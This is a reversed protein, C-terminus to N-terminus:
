SATVLELGRALARHTPDDGASVAPAMDHLSQHLGDADGARISGMATGQPRDVIILFAVARHAHMRWAVARTLCAAKYAGHSREQVMAACRVFPRADGCDLRIILVFKGDVEVEMVAEIEEESIAGRVVLILTGTGADPAQEQQSHHPLRIHADDRHVAYVWM